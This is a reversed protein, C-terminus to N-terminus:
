ARKCEDNNSCELSLRDSNSSCHNAVPYIWESQSTKSQTVDGDFDSEPWWNWWSENTESDSCLEDDARFINTLRSPTVICSTLLGVIQIRPNAPSTSM